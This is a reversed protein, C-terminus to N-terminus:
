MRRRNFIMNQGPGSVLEAKQDGKIYFYMDEEREVADLDLCYLRKKGNSYVSYYILEEKKKLEEINDLKIYAKKLTSGKKFLSLAKEVLTPGVIKIEYGVSVSRIIEKTINARQAPIHLKENDDTYFPFVAFRSKKLSAKAKFSFNFDERIAIYEKISKGTLVANYIQDIDARMDDGLEFIIASRYNKDKPWIWRLIVESDLGNEVFLEKVSTNESPETLIVANKRVKEEFM